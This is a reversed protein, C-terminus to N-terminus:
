VGKYIRSYKVSFFRVCFVDSNPSRFEIKNQTITQESLGM